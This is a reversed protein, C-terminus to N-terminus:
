FVSSYPPPAERHTSSTPPNPLINRSWMFSEIQDPIEALVEKALKDESITLNGHHNRQIFNCIPVFQVIDRVAERGEYSLRVEDGDLEEMENFDANGIGVIIISLPLHSAKVIAEKTLPMDTIIGDTLMLLIFYESGDMKRGAMNAVHSIIPAFNTPGSLQISNICRQYADLVGPIGDCFPNSSNGNVSFNHSIVGNPPLRAGFGFVPFLKDTDYDQIIEGVAKLAVAYQNPEIPDIYHLTGRQKPNGNSATFDIAITCNLDLGGQIYELFSSRKELTCHILEVFSFAKEKDNEGKREKILRYRNNDPTSMKLKNISTLVAGFCRHSGNTHFDYCEIKLLRDYDGNCLDVSSVSFPKWLPNSTGTVYETKYCVVYRSEETVKSIVLFPKCRGFFSSKVLKRGAFQFTILDGAALISQANGRVIALGIQQHLWSKRRPKGTNTGMLEGIEDLVRATNPGCAGSTEFALGEFIYKQNLTAYKSSKAEEANTVASSAKIASSHINTVAYTNVVTVDWVISKGM